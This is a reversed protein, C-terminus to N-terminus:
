HKDNLQNSLKQLAEEKDGYNLERILNWYYSKVMFLEDEFQNHGGYPTNLWSEGELSKLSFLKHCLETILSAESKSLVNIGKVNKM